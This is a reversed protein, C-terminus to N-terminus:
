RLDKQVRSEEKDPLAEKHDELRLRITIGLMCEAVAWKLLKVSTPGETKFSIECDRLRSNSVREGGWM